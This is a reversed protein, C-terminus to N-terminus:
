AQGNVPLVFGFHAELTCRMQYLGRGALCCWCALKSGEADARAPSGRRCVSFGRLGLLVKPCMTGSMTGIEGGAWAALGFCLHFPSWDVNNCGATCSAHSGDCTGCPIALSPIRWSM